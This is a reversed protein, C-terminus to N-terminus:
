YPEKTQESHKKKLRTKRRRRGIKKQTAKNVKANRIAGKKECNM